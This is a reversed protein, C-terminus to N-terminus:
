GRGRPSLNEQWSGIFRYHQEGQYEFAVHLHESYGDLEFPSVVSRTKNFRYGTLWEFVFRCEEEKIHITCKPCRQGIRVKKPSKEFTHGNSCRWFHKKNMGSYVSSLLTLGVDNGLRKIHELDYSM